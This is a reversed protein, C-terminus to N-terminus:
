WSLSPSPSSILSASWFSDPISASYQSNHPSLQPHPSSHSLSSPTCFDAPTWLRKHILWSAICLPTFACGQILQSISVSIDSMSGFAEHPDQPAPPSIDETWRNQRRSLLLHPSCYSHSSLCHNWFLSPEKQRHSQLQVSTSLTTAPSPSSFRHGAKVVSYKWYEQVWDMSIMMLRWIHNIINLPFSQYRSHSGEDEAFVSCTTASLRMRHHSDLPTSPSLITTPSIVKM